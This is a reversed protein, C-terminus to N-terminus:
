GAPTQDSCDGETEESQGAKSTLVVKPAVEATLLPLVVELVSNCFGLVPIFSLLENKTQKTKPKNKKKLISFGPKKGIQQM